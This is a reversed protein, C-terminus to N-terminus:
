RAPEMPSCSTPPTMLDRLTAQAFQRDVPVEQAEGLGDWVEQQKSADDNQSEGTDSSRPSDRSTPQSQKHVKGYDQSFFLAVGSAFSCAVSVIGLGAARGFSCGHELEGHCLDSNLAKFTVSFMVVVVVSVLFALMRRLSRKHAGCSMTLIWIWLMTAAGTAVTALSRGSCWDSGLFASYDEWEYENDDDQLLVCNGKSNQFTYFGLGTTETTNGLQAAFLQVELLNDVRVKVFECDLLTASGMLIGLLLLVQASLIPLLGNAYVAGCCQCADNQPPRM